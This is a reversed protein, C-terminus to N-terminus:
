TGNSADRRRRRERYHGYLFYGFLIVALPLLGFMWVVRLGPDLRPNMLNVIGSIILIAPTVWIWRRWRDPKNSEPTSMAPTGIHSNRHRPYLGKDGWWLFAVGMLLAVVGLVVIEANFAAWVLLLFGLMMSMGGLLVLFVGAPKTPRAGHPLTM